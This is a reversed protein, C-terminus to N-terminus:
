DGRCWERLRKLAADGQSAEAAPGSGGTWEGCVRRYLSELGDTDNRCLVFAAYGIEPPAQLTVLYHFFMADLVLDPHTRLARTGYGRAEEVEGRRYLQSCAEMYVLATALQLSDEPMAGARRFRAVVDLGCACLDEAQASCMNGRHMRYYATVEPIFAFRAGATALRGFLDWDEYGMGSLDEAFGGVERIAATRFLYSHIPAFNSVSLAGLIDGTYDVGDCDVLTTSEADVYGWRSYVAALGPDDDLVARQLELKDAAILDDSDLFMVAERTALRLGENRAAGLGRRPQRFYQIPLEFERVLDATGDTSGDDVVVVETGPSRSVCERVSALTECIYDERNFTAIM